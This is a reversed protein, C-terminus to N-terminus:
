NISSLLEVPAYEDSFTPAKNTEAPNIDLLCRAYDAFNFIKVRGSNVLSSMKEHLETISLREKSKTAVIIINMKREYDIKEDFITNPFAYVNKFVSQLTRYFSLFIGGRKGYVSSIINFAVVGDARIIKSIELLFEKTVMYFPVQGNANFADVIVIDYKKSTKQIFRRGDEVFMNLRFSTELFFYNKSAYAVIPDIEVVDIKIGPYDFYFNRTAIGGGCGIFLVDNLQESFAVPLHLMDTCNYISEKNSLLIAAQDAKGFRLRRIGRVMNDSVIIHNYFSDKQFILVEKDSIEVLPSHPVIALALSICMFIAFLIYNVSNKNLIFILLSTFVLVMGLLTFISSVKMKNILYFATFLTGSINGVASIAYLKGAVNGVNLINKMNFKIAFPSVMGLLVSPWFFIICSAFLPGIVDDINLSMILRAAMQNLFPIILTFMGALAIISGWLTYSPNRDALKGGWWYGCALAALLVSILSAWVFITNGLYPSLIRSGSIEIAMLVSSSIFVIIKIFIFEVREKMKFQISFLGFM